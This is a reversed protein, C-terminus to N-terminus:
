DMRNGPRESNIGITIDVGPCTKRTASRVTGRLDDGDTSFDRGCPDVHGEPKRVNRLPHPNDQYRGTQDSEIGHLDVPETLKLVPEGHNLHSRNYRENDHPDSENEAVTRM